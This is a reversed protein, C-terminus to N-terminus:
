ERELARKIKVMKQYFFLAFVILVWSVIGLIVADNGTKGEYPIVTGITVFASLCLLVLSFRSYDTVQEKLDKAREKSM